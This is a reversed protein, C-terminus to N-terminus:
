FGYEAFCPASVSLVSAKLVPKNVCRGWRPKKPLKLKNITRHLFKMLLHFSRRGLNAQRVDNPMCSRHLKTDSRSTKDHHTHTHLIGAVCQYKSLPTRAFVAEIPTKKMCPLSCFDLAPHAPHLDPRKNGCLSCPFILKWMNPMFACHSKDFCDGQLLSSQARTM